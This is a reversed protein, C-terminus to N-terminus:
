GRRGMGLPTARPSRLREPLHAARLGVLLWYGVEGCYGLLTCRGTVHLALARLHRLRLDTVLVSVDPSLTRLRDAVEGLRGSTVAFERGHRELVIPGGPDDLFAGSDDVNLVCVGGAERELLEDICWRIDGLVCRGGGLARRGAHARASERLWRVRWFHRGILGGKRRSGDTRTVLGAPTRVPMSVPYRRALAAHAVDLSPGHQALSNHTLPVNVACVRLGQARLRLGNEVAYAHWAFEPAESLPEHELVLRPVVFLVEDIAEVDIPSPAPDGLLVVRDRIRGVLRGTRRVGIAGVLGIGDDFALMGAAEELAALSHLAVDQHVFALFEHRARSAGLNLGAAASRISADRNDVCIYDLDAIEHRHREISADLCRSRVRADNFVCVISVSRPPFPM